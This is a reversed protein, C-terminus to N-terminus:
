PKSTIMKLKAPFMSDGTGLIISRGAGQAKNSSELLIKSSKANGSIIANIHNTIDFQYLMVTMGNLESEELNGGFVSLGTNQEIANDLILLKIGDENIFSARIRDVPGVVPDTESLLVLELTARNIVKDSFDKVASLDLEINVGQMEQIYWRSDLSDTVSAEVETGSYDHSLHNSRIKGVEIFYIKSDNDKNSYYFELAASSTSSLDLGIISNETSSSSLLLGKAFASFAIPDKNILTDVAIDHWLMTDLPIRIQPAVTFISDEIPSYIKVSDRHNIIQSISGLVTSEAEFSQDSFLTDLLEITLEEQLQRVEIDHFAGDMAYQGLTDLPIALVVSDIKLTDFSPFNQDAINLSVYAEASSLGFVPDQILGLLFIRNGFSTTNRFVVVPESYVSYGSLEISDTYEIVISNDDLLSSGVSIEENCSFLAVIAFLLLLNLKM